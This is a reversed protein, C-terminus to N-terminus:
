NPYIESLYEIIKHMSFSQHREVFHKFRKAYHIITYEITTYLTIDDLIIYYIFYVLMPRRQQQKYSCM